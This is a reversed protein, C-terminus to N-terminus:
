PPLTEMAPLIPKSGTMRRAQLYVAKMTTVLDAHQDKGELERASYLTQGLADGPFSGWPHSGKRSLDVVEEVRPSGKTGSDYQPNSHLQIIFMDATDSV